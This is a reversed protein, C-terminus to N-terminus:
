EVLDPIDNVIPLSSLHQEKLQNIVNYLSDNENCFFGKGYDLDRIQLRVDNLYKPKSVNFHKLVFETEANLDGLIRPSATEGLQNRLNAIAIASCVADTDPNKHGFVFIPKM